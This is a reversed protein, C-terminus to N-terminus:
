ESDTQRTRLVIAKTHTHLVAFHPRERSRYVRLQIGVYNYGNKTDKLTTIHYGNYQHHTFQDFFDSSNIRAMKFLFNVLGNVFTMFNVNRNTIKYLSVADDCEDTPPKANQSPSFKSM